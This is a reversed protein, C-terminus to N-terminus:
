PLFYGTRGGHGHRKYPSGARWSHLLTSKGSGSTGVIAVFEGKKVSLDVGDLAHVANNGSGYIKKLNKGTFSGYILVEMFFRYTHFSIIRQYMCIIAYSDKWMREPPFHFDLLKSLITTIEASIHFVYKRKGSRFCGQYLRGRRIHDTPCPILRHRGKKNRCVIQATFALLYRRKSVKRSAQVPIRYISGQLCKM